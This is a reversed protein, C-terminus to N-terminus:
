LGNINCDVLRGRHLLIPRYSIDCNRQSTSATRGREEDNTTTKPFEVTSLQYYQYILTTYSHSMPGAATLGQSLEAALEPTSVDHEQYSIRDQYM